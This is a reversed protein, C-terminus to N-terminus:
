SYTHHGGDVQRLTMDVRKYSQAAITLKMAESSKRAELTLLLTDTLCLQHLTTHNDRAYFDTTLSPLLRMVM